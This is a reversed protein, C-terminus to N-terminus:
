IMHDYQPYTRGGVHSRVALCLSLRLVLSVCEWALQASPLICGLTVLQAPLGQGISKLYSLGFLAQGDATM